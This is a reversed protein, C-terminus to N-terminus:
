LRSWVASMRAARGLEVGRQARHSELKEPDALGSKAQAVGGAPWGHKAIREDGPAVGAAPLRWDIGGGEGTGVENEDRVLVGIVEVARREPRRSTEAARSERKDDRM